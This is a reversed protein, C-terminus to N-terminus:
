RSASEKRAGALARHDAPPRGHDPRRTAQALFVEPWAFNERAAGTGAADGNAATRRRLIVRGPELGAATQWTAMEELNFGLWRHDLEDRMWTLNHRTFDILVVTGAPRVIRTLEALAEVPKAVHHLVMSCYVADFVGDAFPLALVDAQHFAVQGYGADRCRRRARELMAVSHDIAVVEAATAALVPLLAGTGTGVDAVRLGPPVLAGVVGTQLDPHDYQARIRDWDDAVGAFSERSRAERAAIVAALREDDGGCEPLATAIATVARHLEEGGAFGDAAVVRYWSFTGERRQRVWGADRLVGLHKSVSPQNVELAAVLEQVNLEERSLLRLLRLRTRESVAQFLLEAGVDV